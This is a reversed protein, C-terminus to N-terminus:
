ERAGSGGGNVATQLDSQALWFARKADIAARLSALRQRADTLLASSRTRWREGRAALRPAPASRDPARLRRDAHQLLSAADGRHHDPSAAPDRASLPQRHRSGLSLRSLRRASGVAR